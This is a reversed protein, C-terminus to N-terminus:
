KLLYEPVAYAPYAKRFEALQEAAEKERGDRKLRSIEELWTEPSRQTAQQRMPTIEGTAAPAAPAGAGQGGIASDGAANSETATKPAATV